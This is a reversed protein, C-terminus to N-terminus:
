AVATRWPPHFAAVEFASRLRRCSQIKSHRCPPRAWGRAAHPPSSARTSSSVSVRLHFPPPSATHTCQLSNPPHLRSSMAGVVYGVGVSVLQVPWTPGCGGDTGGTYFPQRRGPSLSCWVRVADFARTTVSGHLLYRREGFTPRVQQPNPNPEMALAGRHCLPGLSLLMWLWGPAVM